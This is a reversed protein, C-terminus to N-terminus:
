SFTDENIAMGITGDRMLQLRRLKAFATSIRGSDAYNARALVEARPIESGRAEVLVRFLANAPSDLKAVWYGILDDGTPLQDFPGLATLGESTARMLQGIDEIWREARLRAFATSIRGSDAYQAITLVQPRTRGDTYQAIATLLRRELNSM